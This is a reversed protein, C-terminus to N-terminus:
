EWSFFDSFFRGIFITRKGERVSWLFIPARKKMPEPDYWIQEAHPKLCDEFIVPDLMDTPVGAMVPGLSKKETYWPSTIDVMGYFSM